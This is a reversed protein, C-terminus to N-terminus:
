TEKKLEALAKFMSILANRLESHAHTMWRKTMTEVNEAADVVKQLRENKAKFEEMAEAEHAAAAKWHEVTAELEAIRCTPHQHTVNGARWSRCTWTIGNRNDLHIGAGCWPCRDDKSM